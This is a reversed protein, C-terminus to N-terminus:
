LIYNVFLVGDIYLKCTKILAFFFFSFLFFSFFVRLARLDKWYLSTNMFYSFSHHVMILIVVWFNANAGSSLDSFKM